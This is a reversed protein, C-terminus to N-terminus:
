GGTVDRRRVLVYAIALAAAAWVASVVLGEVLPGTFRPATLLGHWAEFPTTPLVTRLGQLSGLAGVLQMVLGLAAPAAIGAASSRTAVSILVALATFALLPPLTSAWAAAVLVLAQGDGITQGSLGTLPAGGGLLVSSAITAAGLVALVVVAFGTAALVKAWFLTSRGTSRTLVTKWTGHQDESSFVDGAVISTLLPLAWQGAFGLILLALSWGSTTAYRGFLTDKPPQSQASIALAVPVPVVLAALLVVRVRLQAVLKRVEWALVAGLGAARGAPGHAPSTAVTPTPAPLTTM